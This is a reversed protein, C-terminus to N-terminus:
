NGLAKRQDAIRKYKPNAELLDKWKAATIRANEFERAQEGPTFDDIMLAAPPGYQFYFRKEAGLFEGKKNWDLFNDTQHRLFFVEAFDALEVNESYTYYLNQIGNAAIFHRINSNGKGRAHARLRTAIGHRLSMTMGVYRPRFLTPYNLGFYHKDSGHDALTPDTVGILYIGAGKTVGRRDNLCRLRNWPVGSSM